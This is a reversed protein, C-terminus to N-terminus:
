YGELSEDVYVERRFAFIFLLKGVQFYKSNNQCSIKGIQLGGNVDFMKFKRQPIYLNLQTIPVCKHFSGNVFLNSTEDRASSM